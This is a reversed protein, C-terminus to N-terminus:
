PYVRTRYQPNPLFATSIHNSNIAYLRRRATLNDPHETQATHPPHVLSGPPPPQPALHGTQAPHQAPSTGQSHLEDRRERPRITQCRLRFSHIPPRVDEFLWEAYNNLPRGVRSHRPHTRSDRRDTDSAYEHPHQTRPRVAGRPESPKASAVPNRGGRGPVPCSDPLSGHTESTM